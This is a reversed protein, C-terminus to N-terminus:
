PLELRGGEDFPFFPNWAVEWVHGDPDAFYGSYGGWFVDKAPKVVKAGLQKVTSLVEDVEERSRTNYALTIGGFGRGEPPVTVDEALKDRPYLALVVGGMSFFVADEGSAASRVWGLGNEYFNLATTLDSVGLTILHLQQRM